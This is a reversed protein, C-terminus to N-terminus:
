IEVGENIKKSKGGSLKDAEVLNLFIKELSQSVNKFQMVAIENAILAKSVMLYIDINPNLDSVFLDFEAIEDSLQILNKVEFSENANKIASKIDNLNKCRVQLSYTSSGKTSLNQRIDNAIIKGGNIILVRNCINEVESLIHTSLIITHDKALNKFLGRVLVVQSPDLGSTPEDLILVSPDGILAQALGVRQRYGKSLTSIIKKLKEGLITKEVVKDIEKKRNKVCKLDCVFSLYEFVTMDDYLPPVDPLYGIHKKADVPRKLIDYGGIEISGSTADLCGTLMDMTTSKGAGNLGLFGVLEGKKVSISINDVACFKGYKKTLNKVNVLSGSGTSSNNEVSM